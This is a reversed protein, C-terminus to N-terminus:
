EDDEEKVEIQYAQMDAELYDPPTVGFLQELGPLLQKMLDARTIAMAM